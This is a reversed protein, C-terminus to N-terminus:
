VKGSTMPIIKTANFTLHKYGEQSRIGMFQDTRPDFRHPENDYPLTWIYGYKDLCMFDIRNSRMHYKDGQQIKYTYFNYGDFRALGNWTSFWMFGKNDQLISMITHQPLGDEPGYHEFFCKPQASLRFFYLFILLLFLTFRFKM